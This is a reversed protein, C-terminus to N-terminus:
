VIQIMTMLVLGKEMSYRHIMLGGGGERCYIMM